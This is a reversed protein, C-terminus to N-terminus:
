RQQRLADLLHRFDEPPASEFTLTEGSVPHIFALRRAHLAQRGATDLEKMLAAASGSVTDDADKFFHRGSRYVSDGVLPHGISQMHVRIQHTRGTDLSCEVLTVRAEPFHDVVHYRTRAEKGGGTIAMRVRNQPDRGVPADVEGDRELNGYVLALYDRKVTRAQLQRVLHTQAPLTKAVVLLGSTEKDLRHVIGARPVNALAPAHHLLANLMTGQQNGSGPHVVLGAPKDIVIVTDDEFVVNLAIDEPLDDGAGAGPTALLEIREGGWIKQAPRGPKGDILIHGDQLWSALRSRSHEPFMRALAQDLRLGAMGNPVAAPRLPTAEAAVAPPTDESTAGSANEPATGTDTVTYDAEEDSHEMM